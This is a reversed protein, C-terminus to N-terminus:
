VQGPELVSEGGGAKGLHVRETHDVPNGDGGQSIPEFQTELSGPRTCPLMELRLNPLEGHPAVDFGQLLCALHRSFVSDSPLVPDVSQHHKPPSSGSSKIGATNIYVQRLDSSRM